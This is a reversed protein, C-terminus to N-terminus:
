ARLLERIMPALADSVLFFDILTEVGVHLHVALGSAECNHPGHAGAM